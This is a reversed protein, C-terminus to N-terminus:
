SLFWTRALLKSRRRRRRVFAAPHPVLEEANDLVQTRLHGPQLRTVDDHRREDPRVVGTVEAALSQLSRAPVAAHPTTIADVAPLALGYPYRLGLARQDLHRDALVRRQQRRQEAEGVQEGGPVV